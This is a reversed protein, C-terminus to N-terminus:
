GTVPICLYWSVLNEGEEGNNANVDPFILSHWALWRWLRWSEPSSFIPLLPSQLVRFMSINKEINSENSELAMVYLFLVESKLSFSMSGLETRWKPLFGGLHTVWTNILSTINYHTPWYKRKQLCILKHMCSLIGWSPCPLATLM